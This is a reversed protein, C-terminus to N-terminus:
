ITLDSQEQLAAAKRVLHSLVAAAVAVAIGAFVVLLSFLTVGPHSMDAFLLILNGLFFYAADGAALWSIIRLFRANKESFSRDKGISGAIRWGLVLAAYCPISTGWLFLLWPWYRNEFEPADDLLSHGCYPLVVFYVLLGCLGVGVLIIRLWKSLSKQNM